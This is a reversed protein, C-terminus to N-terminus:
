APGPPQVGRRAVEATIRKGGIHAGQLIAIARPLVDSHVGVFSHRHRVKVHTVKPRDVGGRELATYLDEPDLHERRGVSVYIDASDASDEASSDQSSDATPPTDPPPMDPALHSEAASSGPDGQVSVERTPVDPVQQGASETYPLSTEESSEEVPGRRSRRRSRRTNESGTHPPNVPVETESPLEPLEHGASSPQGLKATTQHDPSQGLRDRLLMAVIQDAQEHALLRRALSLDDPHAPRTSFTQAFGKIVDAEARTRLERLTPLQRELPRIGYTLRLLYLNGVDAPTVLSIATGTRGARGTRGTRHVYGEATDPLDFNLVHTLLSIDIGRAAVDTAVLFRFEGRRMAGMVRERESQGLDANLWDAAYGQQQLAAAVRRTQDRTNTFVIASEPEEVRLMQSFDAVKDGYSWYVVHGVELAGVHDGSLTLFEPHRLRTEAMRRIDPPLTASFLLTQHPNPLYGLIENIQPLFGMSLMEDSEDLVLVRLSRTQITGRRLHDLMRGPTGVVIQAGRALQEIQRAMPAGGYIAVASIGRYKGLAELEQTVQLALERTPCLVLGQLTAQGRRVLCGLMPLGFAATKGTGTRAQVVLDVGRAAPEYVARQVPTPVEFGLEHVARRVEPPLPLSDFTVKSEPEQSCM